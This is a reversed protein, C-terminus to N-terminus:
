KVMLWDGAKKWFKQDIILRILAALGFVLSLVLSVGLGFILGTGLGVLLGTALGAALSAALSAGLGAVLGAGLSVVLSAALGAAIDADKLRPNTLFLIIITSWIPGVLIDWWRSIGFPLYIIWSETIKISTMIPVSGAFWYWILWFAAILASTVVSWRIILKKVRM